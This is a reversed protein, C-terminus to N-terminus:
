GPQQLRSGAWGVVAGRLLGAGSAGAVAALQRRKMGRAADDRADGLTDLRRRVAKMARRTAYVRDEIADEAVSKLLRVAHSVHAARRAADVITGAANGNAARPSPDVAASVM